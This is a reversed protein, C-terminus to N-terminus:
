HTEEGHATADLIVRVERWYRGEDFEGTPVEGPPVGDRERLRAALAEIGPYFGASPSYLPVLVCLGPVDSGPHTSFFHLRFKGKSRRARLVEEYYVAGLKTLRGDSEPQVLVVTCEGDVYEFIVAPLANPDYYLIRLFNIAIDARRAAYDENMLAITFSHSDITKHFGYRVRMTRCCSNRHDARWDEKQCPKSCYRLQRCGGCAKLTRKPYLKYCNDCGSVVNGKEATLSDLLRLRARALQLCRRWAAELPQNVFRCTREWRGLSAESHRLEALVRPSLLLVPLSNTLYHLERTVDYDAPLYKWVENLAPLVGVRLPEIIQEVAARQIGGEQNYFPAKLLWYLVCQLPKIGWRSEISELGNAVLACLAIGLRRAFGQKYVARRFELNAVASPSETVLFPAILLTITLEDLVSTVTPLATELMVNCLRALSVHGGAGAALENFFATGNSIRDGLRRTISHILSAVTVISHRQQDASPDDPLDCLAAWVHGVYGPFGPISVKDPALEDVLNFYMLAANRQRYIELRDADSIGLMAHYDALFRAWTWWRPWLEVLAGTPARHEARFEPSAALTAGRTASTARRHGARVRELNGEDEPDAIFDSIATTELCAYWVPCLRAVHQQPFSYDLAEELLAELDELSGRAAALASKRLSAPLRSLTSIQLLPHM